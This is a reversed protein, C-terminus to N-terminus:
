GVTHYSTLPEAPEPTLPGSSSLDPHSSTAVPAAIRTEAPQEHGGANAADMMDSTGKKFERIGKGMAGGIEPLRKPGFIVLALGLVIALEWIHGGFM